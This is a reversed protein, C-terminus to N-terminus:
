LRRRVPPSPRDRLSMVLKGNFFMKRARWEVGFKFINGKRQMGYFKHASLRMCVTEGVVWRKAVICGNRVVSLRISPCVICRAM